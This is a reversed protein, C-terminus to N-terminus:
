VTITGKLKEKKEKIKENCRARRKTPTADKLQKYGAKEWKPWTDILKGSEPDHFEKGIGFSDRTGLMRPVNQGRVRGGCHNCVFFQEKKLKTQYKGCDICMYEIGSMVLGLTNDANDLGEWYKNRRM